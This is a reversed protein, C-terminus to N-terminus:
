ETRRLYGRVVSLGIDYGRSGRIGLAAIIVIGILCTPSSLVGKNWGARFRVVEPAGHSPINNWGIVSMLVQGYPMGIDLLYVLVALAVALVRAHTQPLGLIPFVSISFVLTLVAWLLNIKDFFDLGWQIRRFQVAQKNLGQRADLVWRRKEQSDADINREEKYISELDNRFEEIGDIIEMESLNERAKDLGSQFPNEINYKHSQQKRSSGTMGSSFVHYVRLPKDGVTDQIVRLIVRLDVTGM